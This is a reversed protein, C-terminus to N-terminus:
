GASSRDEASVFHQLHTSSYGLSRWSWFCYYVCIGQMLSAKWTYLSKPLVCCLVALFPHFMRLADNCESVKAQLFVVCVEQLCVVARIVGDYRTLGSLM